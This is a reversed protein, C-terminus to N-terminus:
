RGVSRLTRRLAAHFLVSTLGSSTTSIVTTGSPRPSADIPSAIADIASMAM